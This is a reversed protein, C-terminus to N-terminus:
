DPGALADIAKRLGSVLELTQELSWVTIEPHMQVVLTEGTVPNEIPAGIPSDSRIRLGVKGGSISVGFDTVNASPEYTISM